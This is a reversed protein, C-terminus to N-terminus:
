SPVGPDGVLGPRCYVIPCFPMCGGSGTGGCARRLCVPGGVSVLGASCLGPPRVARLARDDGVISGLRYPYVGGAARSFSTGGYAVPEGGKTPRSGECSGLAGAAPYITARFAGALGGGNTSSTCWGSLRGSGSGLLPAWCNGVTLMVGQQVRIDLFKEGKGRPVQIRDIGCNINLRPLYVGGTNLRREWASRSKSSPSRGWELPCPM